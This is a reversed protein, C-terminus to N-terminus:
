CSNLLDEKIAKVAVQTRDDVALKQIINAVHAKATHITFGLLNAIEKNSKGDVILQLVELERETLETNYRKRQQKNPEPAPKTDNEGSGSHGPLASQIIKAIAPDLWLAGDEITEIVQCLRSTKIDKMCYADAGASLAAFVEDPENHSTLMIIKVKQNAKRIIQTATIGDMEPMGIDMLIVDPTHSESLEVAEKGNEAEAVVDFGEEKLTFALGQRVLEYDEALLIKKSM